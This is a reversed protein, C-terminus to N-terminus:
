GVPVGEVPAAAGATVSPFIKKGALVIQITNPAGSTDTIDLGISNQRKFVYPPLMPFPQQATGFMNVSNIKGNQFFRGTANDQMRFQFTGTSSAILWILMFDSDADLVISPTVNANAALATVTAQYQYFMEIAVEAGAAPDAAPPNAPSPAGYCRLPQGRASRTMMPM